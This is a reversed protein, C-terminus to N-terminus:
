SHIHYGTFDFSLNLRPRQFNGYQDQPVVMQATPVLNNTFASQTIPTQPKFMSRHAEHGTHFTMTPCVNSPRKMAAEMTVSTQLTPHLDASLIGM